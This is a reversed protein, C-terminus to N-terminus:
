NFFIIYGLPTNTILYPLLLISSLYIVETIVNIYKYIIIKKTRVEIKDKVPRSKIVEIDPAAVEIEFTPGPSPSIIPGLPLKEANDLGDFHAKLAPIIKPLSSIKAINTNNM